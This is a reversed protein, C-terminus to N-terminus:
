GRRIPLAIVEAGAGNSTTGHPWIRGGIIKEATEGMDVVQQILNLVSQAPGPPFNPVEGWSVFVSIFRGDHNEDIKILLSISLKMDLTKKYEIHPYSKFPPGKVKSGLADAIEDLVQEPTQRGRSV